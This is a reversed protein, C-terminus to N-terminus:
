SLITKSKQAMQQMINMCFYTMRLIMTNKQKSSIYICYIIMKILLCQKRSNIKQNKFHQAVDYTMALSKAKFIYM